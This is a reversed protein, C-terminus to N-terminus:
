NALNQQAHSSLRTSMYVGLYKYMNVVKVETHGYSWKERAALHGGNRFVVINSKELNVMLDLKSATDHLINLQSQLGIVSDSVLVVDDAFLLILIEILEPSLQIGHRGNEAIEKSLENIFM